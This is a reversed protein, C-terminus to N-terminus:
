KKAKPAPTVDPLTDFIDRKTAAKKSPLNDLFQQYAAAVDDEVVHWGYIVVMPQTPVGIITLMWTKGTQTDIKLVIPKIGHPGEFQGCVIQYRGPADDARCLTGPM